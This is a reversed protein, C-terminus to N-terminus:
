HLKLSRGVTEERAPFGWGSAFVPARADGRRVARRDGESIEHIVYGRRLADPVLQAVGKQFWKAPAARPHSFAAATGRVLLRHPILWHTLNDRPAGSIQNGCLLYGMRRLHSVHQIKNKGYGAFREDYLPMQAM